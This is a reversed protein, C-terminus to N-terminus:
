DTSPRPKAREGFVVSRVIVQFKDHFKSGNSQFTELRGEVVVATGKQGRNVLAEKLHQKFALCPVFSTKDKWDGNEDKWSRETAVTFVIVDKDTRNPDSTLNGSVTISNITQSM